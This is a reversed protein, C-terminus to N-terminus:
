VTSAWRYSATCQLSVAHRKYIWFPRNIVHVMLIASGLFAEQTPDSRLIYFLFHCRGWKAKLYTTVQICQMFTLVNPLFMYIHLLNNPCLCTYDYPIYLTYVTSKILQEDPKAGFASYFCQKILLVTSLSLPPWEIIVWALLKTVCVFHFYWCDVFYVIINLTKLHSSHKAPARQDISALIHLDGNVPTQM